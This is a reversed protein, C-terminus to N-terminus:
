CAEKPAPRSDGGRRAAAPPNLRELLELLRVSRAVPADRQARPDSERLLDLDLLMQAEPQETARAAPPSAVVALVALAVSTLARM